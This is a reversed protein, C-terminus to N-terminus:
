DEEQPPQFTMTIKGNEPDVKFDVYTCYELWEMAINEPGIENAYMELLQQYTDEMAKCQTSLENYGGQIKELAAYLEELSSQLIQMQEEIKLKEPKSPFEIIKATM